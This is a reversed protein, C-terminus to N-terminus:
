ARMTYRIFEPMVLDRKFRQTSNNLSLPEFGASVAADILELEAETPTKRKPM